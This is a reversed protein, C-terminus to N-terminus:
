RTAEKLADSVKKVAYRVSSHDKNFIKAIQNFSLGDETHLEHFLVQRVNSIDQTRMPGRIDDLSFGYPRGIQNAKAIALRILEKHVTEPERDQTFSAFAEPSLSCCGSCHLWGNFDIVLGKNDCIPCRLSISQSIEMKTGKM